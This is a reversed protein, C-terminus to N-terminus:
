HTLNLLGGSFGLFSVLRPVPHSSVLNPGLPRVKTELCDAAVLSLDLGLELGLM